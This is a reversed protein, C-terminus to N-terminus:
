LKNDKNESYRKLLKRVEHNEDIPYATWFVEKKTETDQEIVILFQIKSSFIHIRRRRRSRNEVWLYWEEDPQGEIAPNIWPIRELRESKINDEERHSGETIIHWFTQHYGNAMIESRTEVKKGKLSPPFDIFDHIFIRYADRLMENESQYNKLLLIPPLEIM